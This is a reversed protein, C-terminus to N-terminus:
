RGEEELRVGRSGDKERVELRVPEDAKEAAVVVLRTGGPEIPAEMSVTWPGGGTPAARAPPLPVVESAVWPRAGVPNHVHIAFARGLVTRYDWTEEAIVGTGVAKGQFMAATVGQKGMAGSLVFRSFLGDERRPRTVEPELTQRALRPRLEVDVRADVEDPHSILQLVLRVHVPRQELVVELPLREGPPLERLPELLLSRAAVDMRLLPGLGERKVETRVVDADFRVVTPVNPAVRLELEGGASPKEHLVLHQERRVRAVPPQALAMPSWSLLAMVTARHVPSPLRMVELTVWCPMVPAVVGRQESRRSKPPNTALL